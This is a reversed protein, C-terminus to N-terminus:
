WKVDLNRCSLLPGAYSGLSDRWLAKWWSTLQGPVLDLVILNQDDIFRQLTRRLYPDAEPHQDVIPQIRSIWDKTDAIFKPTAADRAPTGAEGLRAYTNAFADNEAMLPAIATCLARSADTSNVPPAPVVATTPMATNTPPAPHIWAIINIVVAVVGLLLASAIAATLPRSRGQGTPPRGVFVPGAPNTPYQGGPPTGSPGYPAVM